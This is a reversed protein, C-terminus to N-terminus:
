LYTRYNEQKREALTDRGYTTWYRHSNFFQRNVDLWEEDTYSKGMQYRELRLREAMEKYNSASLHYMDADCTIKELLNKPEQPCRTARICSAVKQIQRAPYDVAKLYECAIKVSEEEHNSPNSLYGTDHFWAALEVIEIESPIVRLALCIERSANVVQVTHRLNHYHLDGSWEDTMLSMVYDEVQSLFDVKKVASMRTM